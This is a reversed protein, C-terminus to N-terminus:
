KPPSPAAHDPDPDPVPDPVPDPLDVRLTEISALPVGLTRTDNSGHLENPVFTSSTIRIRNIATIPEYLRFVARREDLDHGRLEIGNVAVALELRDWESGFPHVPHLTIAVANHGDPLPWDIADLTADGDTWAFDKYFGERKWVESPHLVGEIPQVLTRSRRDAIAATAGLQVTRVDLGLAPGAAAAGVTAPDVPRVRLRLGDVRRRAPEIRFLHRTGESSVHRLRRGDAFVRLGLRERDGTFPHWGMTEVLVFAGCPDCELGRIIAENGTWADDRFGELDQARERPVVTLVHQALDLAVAGDDFYLRKRTSALSRVVDRFRRHYRLMAWRTKSRHYKDLIRDETLTFLDHLRAMGGYALYRISHAQLYDAVTEPEAFVPLGPPLSSMGPLSMIAVRQQRFDLAFPNPLTALVRAGPPMAAAMQRVSQRAAEDILEDGAAATSVNRLHRVYSNELSREGLVLGVVAVTIGAAIAARRDGVQGQPDFCLLLLGVTAASGVPFVYRTLSRSLTPDGMGVLLVVSLGVAAALALAPARPRWDRVFVLLLLVPLLQVTHRLLGRAHDLATITFNGRLDSFDDTFVGGYFGKGLVPYLLTHSSSFISSM